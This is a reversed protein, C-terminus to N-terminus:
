ATRAVTWVIVDKVGTELLLKTIVNATACTTIVDDIIAVRFHNPLAMTGKPTVTFTNQLNALRDSASLSKQQQSRRHKILYDTAVPISLERAVANAILRAPNYGRKNISSRHSPVPILVEPPSDHLCSDNSLAYALLEGLAKGMPPNQTNKLNMILRNIPFQYSFAARTTSFIPPNAICQDCYTDSLCDSFCDNHSDFLPMACQNCFRDNWPLDKICHECINSIYSRKSNCLICSPM